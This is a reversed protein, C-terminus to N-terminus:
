VVSKRDVAVDIRADLYVVTAPWVRGVGRVLVRPRDIGAVVHANTMVRDRAFVFGSGDVETDCESAIGEIKVLSGWARRVAPDKLLAPDPEEVPIVPDLGFGSFAQPLGTSDLAGRLGSVWDRTTDPLVRDIEGLVASGRVQTSVPGLPVVIAASAVVWAVLAVTLISFMSGGASDVLRAPQWTVHARLWGGVVAAVANGIGAAVVVILVALALAFVGSIDGLLRPALIAGILAGGIFGVFSLVGSILGQRWGAWAAVLAVGILVVDLANM